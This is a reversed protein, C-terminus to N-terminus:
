PLLVRDIVHIVGNRADIDTGVVRAGDVVLRGDRIGFRVTDGGLTKAAGARVADAAYVRAPVVHRKLIAALKDRNEARLLSELTGEPLKAFAKDTPALVTFPGEGALADALHAAGVARVLTAFTGAEAATEVLTTSSPLLVRDIVHIVGNECQIDAKVVRATDVRLEGSARLVDLRQGLLSVAGTRKSVEGGDLRAPVVHYKLIAVLRARNEPLLLKEVTGAPLADFAADTPAFVTFPGKARLADVLEAKELAAVLTGFSGAEKATSVIDSTPKMSAQPGHLRPGCQASALTSLLAATTVVAFSLKLSRTFM